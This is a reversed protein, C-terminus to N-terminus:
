GRDAPNLANWATEVSDIAAPVFGASQLPLGWYGVDHWRQQKWAVQSLMGCCRFGYATHLRESAVNPSAIFALLSAYGQMRMLPLLQAYLATGVGCGRCDPHAYVSIEATWDYAGRSRYPAAKAFGCLKEDRMAVLWPYMTSTQQWKSHWLDLPEAASALNTCSHEAAWNSIHLIDPVHGQEARIVQWVLSAKTAQREM